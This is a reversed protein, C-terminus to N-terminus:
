PQLQPENAARVLAAADLILVVRGEGLITAGAYIIVGEEVNPHRKIGKVLQGQDDKQFSIKLRSIFM